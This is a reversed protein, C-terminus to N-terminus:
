EEVDDRYVKVGQDIEADGESSVTGVDLNDTASDEDTSKTYCFVDFGGSGARILHPVRGAQCHM